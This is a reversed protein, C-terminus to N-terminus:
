QTPPLWLVDKERQLVRYKHLRASNCPKCKRALDNWRSKDKTFEDKPKYEGCDSCKNHTHPSYGEAIMKEIAHIMKHYQRTCIVLNSNNNNTKNGDVHHVDEKYPVLPRGLVEEAIVRHERKGRHEKTHYTKYGTNSLHCGISM